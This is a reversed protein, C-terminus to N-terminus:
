GLVAPGAGNPARPLALADPANRWHRDFGYKELVSGAGCVKFLYSGNFCPTIVQLGSASSSVPTSSTMWRALDPEGGSAARSRCPIKTARARAWM